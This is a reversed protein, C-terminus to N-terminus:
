TGAISGSNAMTSVVGLPGFLAKRPFEAYSREDGLALKMAFVALSTFLGNCMLVAQVGNRIM